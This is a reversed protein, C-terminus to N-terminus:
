GAVFPLSSRNSASALRKPMSITLLVYLFFNHAYWTKSSGPTPVGGVVACCDYWNSAGSICARLSPNISMAPLRACPLVPAKAPSWIGVCCIAPNAGCCVVPMQDQRVLFQHIDVKCSGRMVTHASLPPGLPM